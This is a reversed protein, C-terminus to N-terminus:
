LLDPTAPPASFYKIEYGGTGIVKVGEVKKGEAKLYRLTDAYESNTVILKGSREFPEALPPPTKTNEESFEEM